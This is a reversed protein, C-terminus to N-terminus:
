VSSMIDIGNNLLYLNLSLLDEERDSFMKGQQEM